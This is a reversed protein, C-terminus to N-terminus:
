NLTISTVDTKIRIRGLGQPLLTVAAGEAEQRLSWEGMKNEWDFHTFLGGEGINDSWGAAPKHWMFIDARNAAPV